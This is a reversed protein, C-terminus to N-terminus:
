GARWWAAVMARGKKLRDLAVVARCQRRIKRWGVVAHSNCFRARDYIPKGCTSCTRSLPRGKDGCEWRTTSIIAPKM